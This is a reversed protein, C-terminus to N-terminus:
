FVYNVFKQRLDEVNFIEGNFIVVFGDDSVFPQHANEVGIIALRTM